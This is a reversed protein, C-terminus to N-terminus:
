VELSEKFACESFFRNIADILSDKQSSKLLYGDPKTELIKFVHDRDNKGTLFIIPIEKEAPDSKIKQMIWIM